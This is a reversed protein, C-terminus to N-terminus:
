RLSHTEQKASSQDILSRGMASKTTLLYYFGKREGPSSRLLNGPDAAYQGPEPRLVVCAGEACDTGTKVICLPSSSFTGYGPARCAAPHPKARPCSPDRKCKLFDLDFGQERPFCRFTPQPRCRDEADKLFFASGLATVGPIRLPRTQFPNKM